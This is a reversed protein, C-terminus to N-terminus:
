ACGGPLSVRARGFRALLPGLVYISARMKKVHDYPAEQSTVHTADLFLSHNEYGGQVGMEHLLDLFTTVDRLRPVNHIRLMGPVLLSAAMMPLVANKAGGIEIEGNLPRGGEIAIADM